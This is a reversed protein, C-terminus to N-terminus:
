SSYPIYTGKIHHAAKVAGSTFSHRSEIGSPAEGTLWRVNRRVIDLDIERVTKDLAPDFVLHETINALHEALKPDVGYAFSSQAQHQVSAAPLVQPDIPIVVPVLHSALLTDLVPIFRNPVYMLMSNEDSGLHEPRDPPYEPAIGLLNNIFRMPRSVHKPVWTSDLSMAKELFRDSEELLHQTESPISSMAEVTEASLTSPQYGNLSNLDQVGARGVWVLRGGDFGRNYYDLPFVVGSANEAPTLPNKSLCDSSPLYMHLATDASGGYSGHYSNRLCESTLASPFEGTYFRQIDSSTKHAPLLSAEQTTPAIFPLFHSLLTPIIM